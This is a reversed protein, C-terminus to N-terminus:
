TSQPKCRQKPNQTLNAQVPQPVKIAAHRLEAKNERKDAACTRLTFRTTYSMVLLGGLVMSHSYAAPLVRAPLAAACQQQHQQMSLPLLPLVRCCTGCCTAPTMMMMNGM